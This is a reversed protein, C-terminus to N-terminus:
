HWLVHVNMPLHLSHHHVNVSSNHIFIEKREIFNTNKIFLISPILLTFVLVLTLITFGFKKIGTM